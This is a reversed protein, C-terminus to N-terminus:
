VEKQGFIQAIKEDDDWWLASTLRAASFRPLATKGGDDGEVMVSIRLDGGQSWDTAYEIKGRWGDNGFGSEVIFYPEFKESAHRMAGALNRRIWDAIDALQIVSYGQDLYRLISAVRVEHRQFTKAKGRGFNRTAPSALIIRKELLARFSREDYGSLVAAESQTFEEM